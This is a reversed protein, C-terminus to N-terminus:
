ERAKLEELKKRVEEKAEISLSKEWAQLAEQKRGLAANVDGLHELLVEDPEPSLEVAKLIYELAETNRNLKYYVWGLSDLYAANKPEAKVAKELLPLAKDLNTGLDAWMYGLYNMADTFEPSLQLAKEFARAAQASDKMQEHAVGLQFYFIHNLRNPDTTNAIVEAATFHRLARDFNKLRTAAVGSFFEMAFGAQFKARAKDLTALADTAKDDALQANALEYYAPEFEPSLLITKSFYDVAESVKQQDFALHGLFYYPQPNTPDSRTLATL